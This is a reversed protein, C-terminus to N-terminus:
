PVGGIGLLSATTSAGNATTVTLVANRFSNPDATVFTVSVPFTGKSGITPFGHGGLAFSGANAGGLVVGTISTVPGKYLFTIITTQGELVMVATGPMATLTPKDVTEEEVGLGLYASVTVVASDTTAKSGDPLVPVNTARFIVQSVGPNFLSSEVFGAGTYFITAGSIRATPDGIAVQFADNLSVGSWMPPNTEWGAPAPEGVWEATVFLSVSPTTSLDANELSTSVHYTGQVPEEDGEDEFVDCSVLGALAALVLPLRAAAPRINTAQSMAKM